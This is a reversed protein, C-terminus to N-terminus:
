WGPVGQRIAQSFDARGAAQRARETIRGRERLQELSLGPQLGGQEMVYGPLYGSLLLRYDLPLGGVIKQMMQFVLTTCNATASNYWRPERQLENAQEVYALLLQRIDGRPLDVRYLYDDEGRVNTRVAVIDREEAAIISLEYQKFFGALSSYSEGKEKRIEVSFTLFRGDGFGFSVLVHAIAPMGWYSTVFDVSELRSLDYRQAQWRVDFDEDSRWTFDRVQDMLLVDGEVRGTALNAVDPSWDRTASPAIANWWVLLAAFGLAYGALGLLVRHRWLLVLALMSLLVWAAAGAYRLATPGPLRYSLALAAWAASALVLLSTLTLLLVRWMFTMGILAPFQSLRAELRAQMRDRRVATGTEALSLEAASEDRRVRSPLFGSGSGSRRCARM